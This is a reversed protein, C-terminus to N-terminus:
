HDFRVNTWFLNKKALMSEQATTSFAFVELLAPPRPSASPKGLITRIELLVPALKAEGRGGM